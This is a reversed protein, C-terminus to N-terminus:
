RHVRVVLRDFVTRYGGIARVLPGHKGGRAARLRAREARAFTRRMRASVRIPPQAARAEAMERRAAERALTGILTVLRRRVRATEGRASPTEPKLKRTLLAARRLDRWAARAGSRSPCLVHDAPVACAVQAAVARPRRPPEVYPNTSTEGTTPPPTTVPPSCDPTVRTVTKAGTVDFHRSTEPGKTVVGGPDGEGSEWKLDTQGLDELTEFLEKLVVSALEAAKGILVAKAGAPGAVGAQQLAKGIATLVDGIGVTNSETLKVTVTWPATTRCEKTHSPGEWVAGAYGGTGVLPLSGVTEWTAGGATSPDDWNVGTPCHVSEAADLHDPHEFSIRICYESQGDVGDDQDSLANLSTLKVSDDLREPGGADEHSPAGAAVLLALAFGLVVAAIAAVLLGLSHKQAM